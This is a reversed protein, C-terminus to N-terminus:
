KNRLQRYPQGTGLLVPGKCHWIARAEQCAVTSREPLIQISSVGFDLKTHSSRSIVDKYAFARSPSLEFIITDPNVRQM